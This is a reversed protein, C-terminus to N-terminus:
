EKSCLVDNTKVKDLDLILLKKDTVFNASYYLKNGFSTNSYVGGSLDEDMYNLISSKSDFMAFRPFTNKTVYTLNFIDEAPNYTLNRIRFDEPMAYDCYTLNDYIRIFWKLNKQVIVALKGEDVDAPTLSYVVEDKAIPISKYFEYGALKNKKGFLLKYFNISSKQRKYTFCALYYDKGKKLVVSDRVGTTKLKLNKRSEVDFISVIYKLCDSTYKKCDLAIYKGDSSVKGGTFLIGETILKSKELSGDTKKAVKYIKGSANDSYWIADLSQELSSFQSTTRNKINFKLTKEKEDVFDFFDYVFENELPNPNIEPVKISEIFDNWVEDFTKGYVMKFSQSIFLRKGSNECDSIFEVFKEIGYTDQIYKTFPGGVDYQIGGEIYTSTNGMSDRWDPITNLVKLQRILHLYYDDNLRGEKDNTSESAIAVGENLMSTIKILNLTAHDGILRQCFKMEDNLFNNWIIAHTLEHKFVGLVQADSYLSLEPTVKSDFMVIHTYYAYNVYSNYYDTNCALIVPFRREPKIKYGDCVDKYISDAEKVLLQAFEYSQESYYIDFYDTKVYKIEKAGKMLGGYAFLINSVLLWLLVSLKTKM